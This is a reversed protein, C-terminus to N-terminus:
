EHPLAREPTTHLVLGHATRNYFPFISLFGSAGLTLKTRERKNAAPLPPSDARGTSHAHNHNHLKPPDRQFLIRSAEEVERVSVSLGGGRRGEHLPSGKGGSGAAVM